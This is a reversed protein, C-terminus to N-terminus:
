KQQARAADAFAKNYWTQWYKVIVEKEKRGMEFAVKLAERILKLKEPFELTSMINIKATINIALDELKNNM